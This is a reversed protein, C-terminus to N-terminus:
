SSVLRCDCQIFTVSCTDCESELWLYYIDAHTLRGGFLVSCTVGGLYYIDCQM